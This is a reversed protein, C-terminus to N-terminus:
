VVVPAAVPRLSEDLSEDALRSKITQLRVYRSNGRVPTTSRSFADALEDIGRQVTWTPQFAPLTSRLLDFNVRYSRKDPGGGEAYTISSGPVAQRVMEALERVQFNQDTRGVNFARNVVAETPADLVAVFAACIDRIHVLPRWPTGDSKILIERDEVACAVLDNLVLDMRLRASVGYATANRMYTPAFSGDALERVAQEVGIKSEGYSTVPNFGATEDLVTDGAAGYISCSSSYLFRRVGVEKALRALRVSADLNIAYTHAPALDGVPDNSLAALHVVADFGRLADPLVDRLDCELEPIDTLSGGAAFDCGSYLDSDLGTVEHGADVLAPVMVAGIYGKHGTVLVKM